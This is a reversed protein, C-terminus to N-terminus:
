NMAGFVYPERMFALLPEHCDPSYDWNSPWAQLFPISIAKDCFVKKCYYSYFTPITPTNNNSTEFIGAIKNHAKAVKTVLKGRLVCDQWKEGLDYDDYGMFDVYEDGPYNALYIFDNGFPRNPCYAWLIEAKPAYKKVSNVTLKFFNKYEDQSVMGSGTGWWQWDDNCEHWLRFIIPIPKGNEDVFLNIADAVEKCCGDFYDGMCEIHCGHVTTDVKTNELIERIVFKHNQPYGPETSIYRYGATNGGTATKVYEEPNCYPNILHWSFSPVSRYEMWATKVISVISRAYAAKEDATKEHGTIRRFDLGYFPLHGMGLAKDSNIGSEGSAGYLSHQCYYTKGADAADALTKRLSAADTWGNISNMGSAAIRIESTKGFEFSFPEAYDKYFMYSGECLTRTQFGKECATPAVYVYYDGPAFATGSAPVADVYWDTASTIEVGDRTTNGAVTGSFCEEGISAIRIRCVDRDAVTLKLIACRNKGALVAAEYGDPSVPQVTPITLNFSEPTFPDEKGGCAVLILLAGLISSTKKIM